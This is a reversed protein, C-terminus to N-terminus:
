LLVLKRTVSQQGSQCKIVYVGVGLSTGNKTQLSVSISGTKDKTRVDVGNIRQGKLNFLAIHLDEQGKTYNVLVQRQSRALPTQFTITMPTSSPEVADENSLTARLVIITNSNAAVNARVWYIKGANTIEVQEISGNEITAPTTGLPLTVKILGEPFAVPQQNHIIVRVSDISGQQGESSEVWINQGANGANLTALPQLQGNNVRILRYARAGDCVAKTALDWTSGSITGSDRHIHGWLALDIGLASLGLQEAFDYHYFLVKKSSSTSSNVENQLWTLQETLFSTDGYEPLGDYNDYAELGIFHIPGYDFSYNQTLPQGAMGLYPWGFFKRWNNRATGAPMPTSNWGGIDHNGTVLYVPVDFEQLLRQGKTYYRGGELDELEGENVLDGTLLVFEPRIVNMDAIVERFDMTETSDSVLGVDDYFQHNPMHVDTIHAFFYSDKRTPIVSVCHKSIDSIGGSAQIILDYISFVPVNPTIYTLEWLQRSQNYFASNLNLIVTQNNRSLMAQWNTTTAPALCEVKLDEGPIVIAPINLLPRMVVTLTDGKPEPPAAIEIMGNVLSTVPIENYAFSGMSLIAEGPQITHFVLSLLIGQGTLIGNGVYNIHLQNTSNTAMVTGGSSLTGTTSYNLYELRDSPYQLTFSYNNAGQPISSTHVNVTINQGLMAPYQGFSIVTGTGGVQIDAANRPLLKYTGYTYTVVGSIHSFLLGTTVPYGLNDWGSLTSTAYCSGSNDNIEIEDYQNAAQMVIAQEAEVLVGELSESSAIQHTTVLLAPPLPNNHNVIQFASIDKIETMGYYEWVQGTLTVADGIQPSYVDDYIYIGNWAGGEPSSIYYGHGAYTATVIGSTSVIEGALPSYYYNNTGPSESYQIEYISVAALINAFCLFIFLWAYRRM